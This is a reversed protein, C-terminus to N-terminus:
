ASFLALHPPASFMGVPKQEAKLIMWFPGEEPETAVLCLAKMNQLGSQASNKIKSLHSKFTIPLLFCPLYPCSPVYLQGEEAGEAAM